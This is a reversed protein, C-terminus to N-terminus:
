GAVPTILPPIGAQQQHQAQAVKEASLKVPVWGRVGNIFWLASAQQLEYLTIVREEIQEEELLEQRLTGALLGCSLPPTIRRGNMEAVVNGRTFETVEGRENWLLVDFSNPEAQQMYHDYVLRRTTKHHLFLDHSSVPGQAIDVTIVKTSAAKPDSGLASELAFGEIHATGVASYLLRVRYMGKPYQASFEDLAADLLASPKPFGLAIASASLRSHHRDRLTLQGNELRLTEILDFGASRHELFRAKTKVEEYEESAQSDWTIGGGLGCELAGTKPQLVLSRIAVNFVADGGPKIYGVAGCYPGRPTKELAAILEMSKLKPAGTISGCPFLAALLDWLGVAPRLEAQVTSTMQMVTPYREITFLSPVSVGGLRALRSLDNRLLDVIMLNEARNKRSEYLWKGLAADEEPMVSRRATGKMPRTVVRNGTRAFFLEPSISLVQVDGWDLYACYDARQARRLQEYYVFSDGTLQAHARLTYNIQYTDGRQIADHISALVANYDAFNTDLAWPSVQPLSANQQVYGPQPSDFIGFRVLPTDGSAKVSASPEFASAAEYAIFGAAYSGAQTATDVAKIVDAVESRDHATLIASPNTFVRRSVHGPIYAFDFVLRV